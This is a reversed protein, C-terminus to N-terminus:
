ADIWKSAEGALHVMESESVDRRKLRKLLNLLENKDLSPNYGALTQVYQEDDMSPDLRYRHGLKRKIQDHYHMM